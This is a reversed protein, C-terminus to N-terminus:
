AQGGTRSPITVRPFPDSPGPSATLARTAVANLDRLLRERQEQRAKEVHALLFYPTTTKRSAPRLPDMNPYRPSSPTAM